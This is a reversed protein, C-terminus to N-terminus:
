RLRFKAFVSRSHVLDTRSSAVAKLRYRGPALRHGRWRKSLTLVHTGAGTVRAVRGSLRAYHGHRLRALSFRTAGQEGTRYRVRSASARLIQLTVPPGLVDTGATTGTAGAPTGFAYLLRGDPLRTLSGYAHGGFLANPLRRWTNGGPFFRATHVAGVAVVSGDALKAAHVLLMSGSSAGAVEAPASTATWHDTAPDYLEATPSSTGGVALVRGDDLTVLSHGVRPTTMSAVPTWTGTAPEFTEASALSTGGIGTGGSVLVRGNQLTTSAADRRAVNMSGTPSWTFTTVPDFLAARATPDAAGPGDAGGAYLVKLNGLAQAVAGLGVPAPLDGVRAWNDAGIDSEFLESTTGSADGGVVLVRGDFLPVAHHGTRQTSMNALRVTSPRRPFGVDFSRRTPRCCAITGGPDVFPDSGGAFLLRGDRLETASHGLSFAEGISGATWSFGAASATGPAM